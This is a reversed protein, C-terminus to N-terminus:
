RRGYKRFLYIIIGMAILIVLIGIWGWLVPTKVAVRFTVDSSVEPISATFKAIYDGAIANKDAKLKLAVISIQGPEINAIESPEFEVVWGSPKTASLRVNSLISSGTNRVLLELNREGGATVKTSVLGTPTTLELEYTGTIVVELELDASTLNTTASVPIIYSGAKVNQPPKVEIIVDKSSNPEIEVATAQQGSPKFIVQWGRPAIGKLSYLQKDGTRNKIDTRFTFNSKSNGEMNAQGTTFETNYSGQKSINVILPLSADGAYLVIKYDGKNVKLPVEIKLSIINKGGAQLAIQKINYLGSKLSYTWSSPIGSLRLNCYQTVESHNSVEISYDISEGPPISIKTNSTYLEVTKSENAHLSSLTVIWMLSSVLMRIVFKQAIMIKEM